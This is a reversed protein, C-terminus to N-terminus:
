HEQEYGDVPRKIIKETGRKSLVDEKMRDPGPIQRSCLCAM